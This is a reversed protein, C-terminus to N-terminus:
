VGGSRIRSTYLLCAPFVFGDKAADVLFHYVQLRKREYADEDLVHKFFDNYCEFMALKM